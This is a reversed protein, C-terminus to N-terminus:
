NHWGKQHKTGVFKGNLGAIQNWGDNYSRLHSVYIWSQARTKESLHLTDRIEPMYCPLCSFTWSSTSVLRNPSVLVVLLHQQRQWRRLGFSIFHWHLLPIETCKSFLPAISASSLGGCSSLSLSCLLQLSLSTISPSLNPQQIRGIQSTSLSLLAPVVFNSEGRSMWALPTLCMWATCARISTIHQNGIKDGQMMQQVCYGCQWKRDVCTNERENLCWIHTINETAFLPDNHQWHTFNGIYAVVDDLWHLRRWVHRTEKWIVDFHCLSYSFWHYHCVSSNTHLRNTAPERSIGESPLSNALLMNVPTHFLTDTESFRSILASLSHILCDCGNGLEFFVFRM